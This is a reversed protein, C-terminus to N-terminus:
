AIEPQPIEKAPAGRRGIAVSAPAFLAGLSGSIIALDPNAGILMPIAASGLMGWLAVRWLALDHLTNRREAISLVASFGFGSLLGVFGLIPLARGPGEGPGIDAPDVVYIVSMIGIGVIIWLLAWFLSVGLAGRLWRLLKNM